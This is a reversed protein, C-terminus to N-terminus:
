TETPVPAIRLISTFVLFTKIKKDPYMATVAASYHKLQLDYYEQILGSIEKERVPFTKYDYV